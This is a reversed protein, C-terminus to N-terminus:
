ETLIRVDYIKTRERKCEYTIQVPCGKPLMFQKFTAILAAGANIYLSGDQTMWQVCELDIMEGTNEDKKKIVSTGLFIGRVSEGPQSFEYYKSSISITPKYENLKSAVMLYKRYEEDAIETPEAYLTTEGKSEVPLLKVEEVEVEVKNEKRAM